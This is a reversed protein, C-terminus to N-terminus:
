KTKRYKNLLESSSMTTQAKAVAAKAVVEKAPEEDDEVATKGKKPAPAEAEDEDDEGLDDDDDTNAPAPANAGEVPAASKDNERDTDVGVEFQHMEKGKFKGKKLLETGKYSVQIYDGKTVHNELLFNLHGSSNLVTVDGQDDRVQHQIGYTGQRSGLYTGEALVQGVEAEAYKVYKFNGNGVKKFAM